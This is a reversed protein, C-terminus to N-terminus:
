LKPPETNEDWEYAPIHQKQRLENVLEELVEVRKMLRQQSHFLGWITAIAGVCIALLLNTM